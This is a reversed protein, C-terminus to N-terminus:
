GKLSAMDIVFRYKVDSRLMREYAENIQQMKILEIDCTINHEGCFILGPAVQLSQDMVFPMIRDDYWLEQTDSPKLTGPKVAKSGHGAKNYTFRSIFLSAKYEKALVLLNEWLGAHLHTNNQASSFLYRSIVRGKPVKLRQRGAVKVKGEVRPVPTRERSRGGGNEKIEAWIDKCAACDSTPARTAQYRPHITCGYKRPYKM